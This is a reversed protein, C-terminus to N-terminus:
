PLSAWDAVKMVKMTVDQEAFGDGASEDVDRSFWNRVRIRSVGGRGEVKVTTGARPSWMDHQM